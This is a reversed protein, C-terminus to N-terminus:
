QRLVHDQMTSKGTKDFLKEIDPFPKGQLYYAQKLANIASTKARPLDIYASNNMIKTDIVREYGGKKFANLYENEEKFLGGNLGVYTNKIGNIAWIKAEAEDYADLGLGVWKGADNKTFGLDGKRFQDAHYSEELLVFEDHFFSSAGVTYNINIVDQGNGNENGYTIEGNTESGTVSSTFSTNGMFM